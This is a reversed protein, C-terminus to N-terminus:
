CCQMAALALLHATGRRRLGAFLRDAIAFCAAFARQLAAQLGKGDDENRKYDFDLALMEGYKPHLRDLKGMFDHWDGSLKMM